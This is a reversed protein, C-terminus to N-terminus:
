PRRTRTEQAGLNRTGHKQNSPEGVLSKMWELAFSLISEVEVRMKEEVEVGSEEAVAEAEM